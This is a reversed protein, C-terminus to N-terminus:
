LKKYPSEIDKIIRNGVTELNQFMKKADMGRFTSALTPVPNIIPWPSEIVTM